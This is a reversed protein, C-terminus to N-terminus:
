SAYKQLAALLTETSQVGEERWVLEKNWYIITTPLGNITLAKTLDKNKDVDVKIVKAKEGMVVTVERLIPNMQESLGHWDAFFCILVPVKVNIIDGFKEM